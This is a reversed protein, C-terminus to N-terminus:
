KTDRVRESVDNDTKGDNKRINSGHSEQGKTDTGELKIQDIISERRLGILIDNKDDHRSSRIRNTPILRFWNARAPIPLQELVSFHSM